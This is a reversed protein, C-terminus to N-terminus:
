EILQRIWAKEKESIVGDVACAMMCILVIDDKLERSVLGLLDAVSDMTAKYGEPDDLGYEHFYTLADGYTTDMELMSDLIPKALLFEEETLEGDAAVACLIFDCYIGIGDQGDITLETLAPIIRATKQIMLETFEEPEMEELVKCLTDFEGMSPM